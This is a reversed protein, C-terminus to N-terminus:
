LEDQWVIVPTHPGMYAGAINFDMFEYAEEETMGDRDMLVEIVKEGSYVLRDVITNGVWVDARGILADDFGDMKLMAITREFYIGGV